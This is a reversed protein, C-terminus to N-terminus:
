YINGLSHSLVFCLPWLLRREICGGYGGEERVDMEGEKRGSSVNLGMGAHVNHM